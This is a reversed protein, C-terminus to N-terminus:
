LGKFVATGIRVITAGEEVAQAYDQTMGMSLHRMRVAPPAERRLQEALERLRVFVPRVTEPDSVFPAMTMLGIIRLNPLRDARRVLDLAGAPELGFKKEEGSVNVQLLVESPGDEEGAVRNVTEALRLSDVSHILYTLPLAKRVKNRQLHGIMHWRLGLHRLGLARELLAQVRNEGVDRVQLEALAEIIELSVTKTVVVLIVEAPDRGVRGCAEAIRGRVNALNRSLVERVKARDM